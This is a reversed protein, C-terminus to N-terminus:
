KFHICLWLADKSTFDVRHVTGKHILLYDGSNLSVTKNNNKFLLKAQGRLLLVWEDTEQNYWQNVPTIHGFSKIRELRFSKTSFLEEIVEFEKGKITNDYINKIDM